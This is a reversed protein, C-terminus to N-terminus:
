PRRRAPGRRPPAPRGGGTRVVPEPERAVLELVAAGRPDVRVGELGLGAGTFAPRTATRAARSAARGGRRGPREGPVEERQEHRNPAPTSAISQSRSSPARAARPPPPRARM